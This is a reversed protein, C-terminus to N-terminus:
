GDIDIFPVDISATMWEETIADLEGSERLKLIAYNACEVLPNDQEFLLGWDEGATEDSTPFQGFVTGGDMQVASMYLATPLDAVIADIQQADLAAIAAANDNFIQVGSAPAIVDEAFILSTTGAAVGIRLEQLASLTTAEAAPSDAYGVIAQTSTYYPVSFSVSEEREASISYQQLNFDFEKPGPQFAAEFPTRVWEVQDPEFGLQAAVAYAVASEFGEGSTPDDDIVYPPFAPDGTAITLVGDEITLGDACAAPDPITGVVASDSPATAPLASDDPVSSALALAPGAAIVAAGSLVAALTNVRM